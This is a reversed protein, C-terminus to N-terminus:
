YPNEKWSRIPKGPFFLSQNKISSKSFSSIKHSSCRSDEFNTTKSPMKQSNQLKEFNDICKKFTKDINPHTEYYPKRGGGKRRNHEVFTKM